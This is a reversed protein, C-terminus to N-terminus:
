QGDPGVAMSSCDSGCCLVGRHIRGETCSNAFSEAQRGPFSEKRPRGEVKPRGFQAGVLRGQVHSPFLHSLSVTNSDSGQTLGQIWALLSGKPLNILREQGRIGKSTFLHYYYYGGWPTTIIEHLRLTFKRVYQRACLLHSSNATLLAHWGPIHLDRGLGRSWLKVIEQSM